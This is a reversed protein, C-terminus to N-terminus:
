GQSTEINEQWQAQLRRHEPVHELFSQRWEPLSIRSARTMLDSYGAEVVQRALSAQDAASFVNACTEYALLPFEMGPNAHQQLYDWLPAAYRQAAELNNLALLCRAVGAEADHVNGRTGIEGLTAAAQEFGALAENVHGGQEKALAAYIQGVAHGFMDNMAQLEPLCQDLEALASPLDGCRLYALALNLGGYACFSRHGIARAIKMSRQLMSISKEPMGLQIYTYGLNCLGIAEGESNGIRHIIVLQRDLLQAARAMDGTETYFISINTLVRALVLDDAVEEACALASASTQAAAELDGLRVECSAKLGLILAELQRDHVRVAAVLGRNYAEREKPYQGSVGLHYGVRYYAEAVLHDDGISKALAVLAVDDAMRAETDGLIGLVEDRGALAQWRRALDPAAPSTSTDSPLLALARDFFIRAQAPAGQKKARTGSQTYWEAALVREGASEYHEAIIPAFEGERGCTQTTGILWAAAQGHYVQRDSKLLAQYAVDRLLGHHFRYEETGAFTSTEQPYFFGRRSLAELEADAVPKDGRVAQLASRWFVRGIVAAQQVLVRQATNLSDMRAELLAILTAPLELSGLREPDLRWPGGRKSRRIVKADVLTQIFEELYYPNGDASDLIRECLTEPLTEVNRLIEGLLDMSAQRSLPGLALHLSRPLPPSMPHSQDDCCEEQGWSPFRETLIPRALCVVLLPLQPCERVLHTVFNVSPTDAWHIDDLMFITDTKRAVAAFYQTLYFLARERLQKPDNEVGQIYPSDSFDFGLLSGVFHAKMQPEDELFASLAEVLKQRTIHVPDSTLVGLRYSIMDRLLGFTVTIAQPSARAKFAIVRSPARAVWRDFEYLLRSKGVGAEGVVTVLQTERYQSARTLATQLQCLEADRGILSTKIGEVGRTFTRFTRPRAALVRYVAVSQTFGKAEIPPLAEVDFAGRIHQHTFQSIFLTGPLATQEMRAALSVTLGMVTSEAESFRGAVVRGTNIGIRISFGMIKFRRELEEACARSETLIALGARVAQRADNEHVKTLGFVAVFGDGMFQTVLGGYAEIPASLRKLAGGMIELVEEPELGQSMLTSNVIDLFLVTVLRRQQSVLQRQELDALKERLPALATDVVNDGLVVRQAELAKIAQSLEDIEQMVCESSRCCSKCSM